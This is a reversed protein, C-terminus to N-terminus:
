MAKQKEEQKKKKMENKERKMRLREERKNGRIDFIESVRAEQPNETEDELDEEEDDPRLGSLNNYAINQCYQNNIKIIKFSYRKNGIIATIIYEGDDLM